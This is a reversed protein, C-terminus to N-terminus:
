SAAGHGVPPPAHGSPGEQPGQPVSRRPHQPAGPDGGPVPGPAVAGEGRLHRHLQPHDGHDVRADPQGHAAGAGHSVGQGGGPVRARQGGPRARDDRAPEEEVEPLRRPGAQGDPAQRRVVRHDAEDRLRRPDGARLVAPGQVRPGRHLGPLGRRRAPAAGRAGPDALRGPAGRLAAGLLDQRAGDQGLRDAGQDRPVGRGEPQRSARDAVSSREAAQRGGHHLARRYRAAPPVRASPRGIGRFQLTLPQCPPTYCIVHQM